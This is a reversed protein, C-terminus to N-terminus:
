HVAIKTRIGAERAIGKIEVAGSEMEPVEASFLWEIFQTSGRSVVLNLAELVM